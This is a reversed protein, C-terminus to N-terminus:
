LGHMIGLIIIHILIIANPSPSLIRDRLLSM